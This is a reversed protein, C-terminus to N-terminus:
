EQKATLDTATAEATGQARQSAELKKEITAITQKAEARAAAAAAESEAIKKLAADLAIKLEEPTCEPDLKLAEAASRMMMQKSIALEKWVKLQLELQAPQM